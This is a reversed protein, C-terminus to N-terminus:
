NPREERNQWWSNSSSAIELPKRACKRTKLPTQIKYGLFRLFAVQILTMRHLLYFTFSFSVWLFLHLLGATPGNGEGECKM